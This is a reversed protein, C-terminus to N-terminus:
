ATSPLPPARLDRLRRLAQLLLPRLPEDRLLQLYHKRAHTTIKAPLRFLWARLRKPQATRWRGPLATTRIVHLLQYALAGLQWLLRNGGLDNVATRGLSLQGLEYIRQEVVAGQNYLRWATLAHIGELNTLIQAMDTVEYTALALTGEENALPCRGQVSLLRADWLSGTTTWVETARPFAGEGRLSPRWPAQHDQLWSHNPVKLLFSVELEVLAQVMAKSFFGKDLRVTIDMVGAERLRAVLAKLWKEAGHATHASGPRWRVGLLDGTEVVFALLPHHSPRGPKKPNYGREAGAQTQGYRVSVTSDLVVTLAAPVGAWAWRIRVVQWVLEDLVPVLTEAARRLWRGFTSPDPIKVWGFLRRIGRHRFLELDDMVGGGYLLLVVWQEVLLSARFRGTVGECRGDLWGGIRLQDWLQRLLVLGGGDTLNRASHRLRV